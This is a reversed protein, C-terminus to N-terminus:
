RVLEERRWVRAVPNHPHCFLFVKTRPTVVRELAAFDIEWRKEATNLALPVALTERGSHGPASLFPPYVPTFSLIQEGPQAFAQVAVNLGVVLGPLWVIWEPEIRWGYRAAMAEVVAATTSPTPRAYGFIGHDVRRHLAALVAPPSLFDMDAVWLPLVDRGAYKQWKQSDTGRRAPSHDFDFTVTFLSHSDALFSCSTACSFGLGSDAGARFVRGRGGSGK